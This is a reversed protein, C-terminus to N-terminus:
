FENLRVLTLGYARFPFSGAATRRFIVTRDPKVEVFKIQSVGGRGQTLLTSSTTRFGLVFRYASAIM